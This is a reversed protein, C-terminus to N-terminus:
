WDQVVNSEKNREYYDDESKESESEEGDTINNEDDEEVRRNRNNVNELKSIDFILDDELGNIDNSIGCYKFLRKIM